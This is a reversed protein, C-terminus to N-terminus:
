VVLVVPGGDDVLDVEEGVGRGIANGEGVPVPGRAAAEAPEDGPGDEAGDVGLEQEM